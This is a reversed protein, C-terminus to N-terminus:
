VRKVGARANAHRLRRCRGVASERSAQPDAYAKFLDAETVQCHGAKLSNRAAALDSCSIDARSPDRLPIKRYIRADDDWFWVQKLSM